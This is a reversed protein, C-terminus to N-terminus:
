PRWGYLWPTVSLYPNFYAGWGPTFGGGWYGGWGWPGGWYGGWGWGWYPPPSIYAPSVCGAALAEPGVDAGDPSVWKVTVPQPQYPGFRRTREVIVEGDEARVAPAPGILGVSWVTTLGALAFRIIRQRM